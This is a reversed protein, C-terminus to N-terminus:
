QLPWPSLFFDVGSGHCGTCLGVDVGDAYVTGQYNEFWYWSDGGTGAAVKVMVAWGGIQDDNGYLEKITASGLPHETAGDDLSAALCDDVFTRVGGFHPGTSGHVDSEALWSSYAGSELWAVLEAETTPVTLGLCSDPDSDGDGPDGDGDGPDGDGDGGDGDGDGSETAQGDSSGDDTCASAAPSLTLAFLAFRLPSRSVM